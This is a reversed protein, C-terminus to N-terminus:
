DLDVVKSQGSDFLNSWVRYPMEQRTLNQADSLTFVPDPVLLQISEVVIGKKRDMSEVYNELVINFSKAVNVNAVIQLVNGGVMDPKGGGGM